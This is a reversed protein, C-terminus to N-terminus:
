GIRPAIREHLATRARHLRSKMARVQIGLLKATEEASLGRVDRLLLVARHSPELTEMTRAIAESLEHAEVAEEPTPAGDRLEEEALLESTELSLLANADPRLRRRRKGCFSRVITYLWHRTATEGRFAAVTRAAAFLSEQAVERATEEDRCLRRAVEVLSTQERRLWEELAHRDGARAAELLADHSPEHAGRTSM